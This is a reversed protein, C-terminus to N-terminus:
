NGAREHIRIRRVLDDAHECVLGAVDRACGRVGHPSCIAMGRGWDIGDGHECPTPPAIDGGAAAAIRAHALRRRRWRRASGPSGSCSSRAVDARLLLLSIEARATLNRLAVPCDGFPM